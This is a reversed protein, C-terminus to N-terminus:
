KREWSLNEMLELLAKKSMQYSSWGCGAIKLENEDLISLHRQVVRDIKFGMQSKIKKIPNLFCPAKEENKEM